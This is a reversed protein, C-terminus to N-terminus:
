SPQYCCIGTSIGPTDISLHHHLPHLSYKLCASLICGSPSADAPRGRPCCHAPPSGGGAAQCCTEAAPPLLQRRTHTRCAHSRTRRCCLCAFSRPPPSLKAPFPPLFSFSASRPFNRHSGNAVSSKGLGSLATSTECLHKQDLLHCLHYDQPLADLPLCNLPM